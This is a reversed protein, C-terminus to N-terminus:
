PPDQPNLCPHRPLPMTGGARHTPTKWAGVKFELDWSVGVSEEELDRCLHGQQGAGKWVAGPWGLGEWSSTKGM